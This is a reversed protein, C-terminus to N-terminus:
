TDPDKRFTDIRDIFCDVDTYLTDKGVGVIGKDLPDKGYPNFQGIDEKKIR